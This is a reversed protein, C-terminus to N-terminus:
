GICSTTKLRFSIAHRRSFMLSKIGLWLIRSPHFIPDIRLGTRRYVEKIGLDRVLIHAEECARRDLWLILRRLPRGRDDLALLSPSYCSLGMLARRAEIKSLASKVAERFAQYLEEPDQEYYESGDIRGIYTTISRRSESTLCAEEDYVRARISSTGIDVGVLVYDRMHGTRGDYYKM